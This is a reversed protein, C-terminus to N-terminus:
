INQKSIIKFDLSIPILAQNENKKNEEISNTEVADIFLSLTTKFYELEDMEKFVCSGHKQWEHKWFVENKDKNSYWYNNLDPLIPELKSIDFDVKKCYTPYENDSYQPWLGHISWNNNKSSDKKLSLYYFKKKNDNPILCIYSFYFDYFYSKILDLCHTCSM